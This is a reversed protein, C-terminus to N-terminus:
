GQFGDPAPSYVVNQGNGLGSAASMSGFMAGAQFKKLENDISVSEAEAAYKSAQAEDKPNATAAGQNQMMAQLEQTIEEADPLDLSQVLRPLLIASLQPAVQIAEMFMAAMEQRQSLLSSGTSVAVDYRGRSLDVGGQGLQVIKPELRKGLIRVQRPVDYLKPILDVIMRGTEEVAALCNDLFAFTGVDGQRQRALIAKGSTENSQNGLSADYIGTVAKMSDVAMGVQQLMGAEVPAPSIRDPRGGGDADPTYVLYAPNGTAATAWISEYGKIMKPTVLWPAKPALAQREISASAWYNLSRQLDKIDTIVSCRYFKDGDFIEEGKCPIIPVRDFPTVQGKGVIGRGSLVYRTVVPKFRERERVVGLGMMSAENLAKEDSAYITRGDSLLLLTDKTKNVEFYECVTVIQADNRMLSSQAGSDTFSSVDDSGYEAEYEDRAWDSVIFGYRADRATVHEATPDLYVSLPNRISAIKITQNFADDEYETNIRWYGCGMQAAHFAAGAYIRSAGSNREIARVLGEIVEATSADGTESATVKISPPQMKTENAVQRVFAKCHNITFTPRSAAKRESEVKDDWQRKGSAFEADEKAQDINHSEATRCFELRQMARTYVQDLDDSM